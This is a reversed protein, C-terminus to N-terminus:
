VIITAIKKGSLLNYLLKRSCNWAQREFHQQQMIHGTKSFFLCFVDTVTVASDAYFVVISHHDNLPYYCSDANSAPILQNALQPFVNRRLNAKADKLLSSANVNMSFELVNM